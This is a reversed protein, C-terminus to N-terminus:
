FHRRGRVEMDDLPRQVRSARDVGIGCCDLQFLRTGLEEELAAVTRSVSSLDVNLGRAAAAFRIVAMLTDLDATNM